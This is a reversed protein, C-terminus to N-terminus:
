SRPESLFQATLDVTGSGSPGQPTKIVQDPASSPLYLWVFKGDAVIRDEAPRAFTVALKGPREQQYEGGTTMERGTVAITITQVFTARATKVNAWAAVARDLLDGQAASQAPVDRAASMLAAAIAVAGMARRNMTAQEITDFRM